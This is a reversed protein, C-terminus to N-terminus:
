FFLTRKLYKGYKVHPFKDKILKVYEAVVHLLEGSGM